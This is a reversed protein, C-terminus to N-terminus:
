RLSARLPWCALTTVAASARPSPSHLWGRQRLTALCRPVSSEFGNGEALADKAFQGPKPAASVRVM